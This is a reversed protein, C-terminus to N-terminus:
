QTPDAGVSVEEGDGVGDGDTDYVDPNTFYVDTEDDDYLGDQDRDPREAPDPAPAPAPAGNAVMPDAGANLEQLDNVGDSDSDARLPDTGTHFWEVGDKLGDHDTDSRKPDLGNRTELWDEVGDRDWDPLQAMTPLATAAVVAMAILAASAIRRMTMANKEKQDASTGVAFDPTLADSASHMM